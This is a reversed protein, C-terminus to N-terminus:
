TRRPVENWSAREIAQLHRKMQLRERRGRIQLWTALLICCVVVPFVVALVLFVTNVAMASGRSIWLIRSDTRTYVRPSGSAVVRVCSIPKSDTNSKRSRTLDQTDGGIQSPNSRSYESFGSAARPSKDPKPNSKTPNCTRDKLCGSLSRGREVLLKSYMQRTKEPKRLLLSGWSNVLLQSPEAVFDLGRGRGGGYDYPWIM